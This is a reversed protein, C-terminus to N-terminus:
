SNTVRCFCWSGCWSCCGFCWSCCDFRWCCRSWCSFITRWPLLMQVSLTKLFRQALNMRGNKGWKFLYDKFRVKLITIFILVGLKKQLESLVWWFVGWSLTSYLSWRDGSKASALRNPPNRRRRSQRVLRVLRRWRSPTEKKTTLQIIIKTYHNINTKATNGTEDNYKAKQCSFKRPKKRITQPISLCSVALSGQWIRRSQLPQSCFQPLWRSACSAFDRKWRLYCLFFAPPGQRDLEFFNLTKWGNYPIWMPFKHFGRHISLILIDTQPVLDVFSSTPTNIQRKKISVKM